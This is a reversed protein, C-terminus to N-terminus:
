GARDSGSQARVDTIANAIAIAFGQDIAPFLKEPEIPTIHFCELSSKVAASDVGRNEQQAGQRDKRERDNRRRRAQQAQREPLKREPSKRRRVANDKERSERNPSPRFRDILRAHCRGRPFYKKLEARERSGLPFRRAVRAPWLFFGPCLGLYAPESGTKSHKIKSKLKKQVRTRKPFRDLGRRRRISRKELDARNKQNRRYRLPERRLGRRPASLFGCHDREGRRDARPRAPARHGNQLDAM